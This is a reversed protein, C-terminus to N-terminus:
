VSALAFSSFGFASILRAIIEPTHVRLPIKSVITASLFTINFLLANLKNFDILYRFNLLHSNCIRM